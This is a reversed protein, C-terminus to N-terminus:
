KKHRSIWLAAYGCIPVVTLNEAAAKEMIKSMLKGATGTGRLAPPAEVYDIFLTAGERRYNAIATEKGVAYEFRSKAANDSFADTMSDQGKKLYPLKM